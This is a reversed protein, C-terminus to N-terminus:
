AETDEHGDFVSPKYNVMLRFVKNNYYFLLYLHIFCWNICKNVVVHLSHCMSFLLFWLFTINNLLVNVTLRHSPSHYWRTMFLKLRFVAIAPEYRQVPTSLGQATLRVVLRYSRCIIFDQTLRAQVSLSKKATHGSCYAWDRKGHRVKGRVLLWWVASCQSFIYLAAYKNKCTQMAYHTYQATYLRLHKKASIISSIKNTNECALIKRNTDAM